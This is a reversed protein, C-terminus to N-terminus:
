CIVTGGGSLASSLPKEINAHSIIVRNVGNALAEQAALVKKKMRGQAIDMAKEIESRTVSRILSSPDEVDKLLGPKNTLIVLEEARVASAISAAVRDADANLAGKDEAEIPITIVPLYGAELLLDLLDTNVKEVTGTHDGRLVKIKGQDLYRIAEKRKGRLLGGDIGSLGIANIDRTRLMQVLRKNVLGSYTMRLLDLTEDDTVRSTHGSPSKVFRPPRGLEESLRNMEDSGGHVLIVDKRAALDEVLNSLDTGVAGGIKVVIM